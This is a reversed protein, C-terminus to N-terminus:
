NQRHVTAWVERKADLDRFEKRGEIIDLYLTLIEHPSIELRIQSQAGRLNVPDNDAPNMHAVELIQEIEGLLNTKYANAVTGAVILTATEAKGNWEVMRVVFPYGMGAGAYPADPILGRTAYSESERYFATITSGTSELRLAGFRAPLEGNETGPQSWDSSQGAARALDMPMAKGHPILTLSGPWKPKGLLMDEDWPDYADLVLESGHECFFWQATHGTIVQLGTGDELEFDVFSNCTFAGEVDEFWQASTMWDGTPYKRKGSSAVAREIGNPTDAWIAKIQRGFRFPVRRAGAYGPERHERFNTRLIVRGWQDHAMDSATAEKVQALLDAGDLGMASIQQAVETGEADRCTLGWGFEGGLGASDSLTLPLRKRLSRMCRDIVHKARHIAIRYGEGGVQGCLGECEDNDHHQAALLERWGEDLEWGPYVDWHPYPRGFLSLTAALSEAFRLTREAHASQHRMFDGNKGLTMGHWVDGMSYRRVPGEAAADLYEGLTMPQVAFRPDALLAKLKPLIVESRCMWDQSPMLELWQLVLPLAGGESEGSEAIESFVIEMDEPWQHLNLKNRTATKLQSGDVGEWQVVPVDERPVEPTHWTWQFYLSANRIGVGSLMQPLQPFFDFEEEWFTRPRVGFLRMATRIGYVRQRINSEGGHFLGYPQGYSAGVIEIQGKQIAQKLLAFSSPDESALKEYGIGDFNVCGKVGAEECLRIMDRVSGPLVDYGWLWEMDAWHMHNGFAYALKRAM